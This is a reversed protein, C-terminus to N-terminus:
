QKDLTQHELSTKRELIPDNLKSYTSVRSFESLWREAGLLGALSPGNEEM